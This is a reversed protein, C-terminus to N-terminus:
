RRELKYSMFIIGIGIAITIVNEASYGHISTLWGFLAIFIGITRM